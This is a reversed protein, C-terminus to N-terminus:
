AETELQLQQIISSITQAYGGKGYISRSEFWDSILMLQVLEARADHANVASGCAAKLYDEAAQSYSELLTDEADTDLRLFQKIKTLDIM